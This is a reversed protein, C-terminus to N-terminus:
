PPLNLFNKHTLYTYHNRMLYFDSGQDADPDSDIHHPDVGTNLLILIKKILKQKQEEFILWIKSENPNLYSALKVKKCSTSLIKHFRLRCESACIRQWM